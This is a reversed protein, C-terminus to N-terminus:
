RREGPPPVILVPRGSHEAVQHSVSGEFRERPGSLGRSGIVIVDADIEDAVDLIGEWTPAAVETRPEAEFGAARALEAGETARALGESANLDEFESGAMPSAMVAYSEAATLTPAIDLVVARRPGLLGATARFSGRSAESGDYCILIWRDNMRAEKSPYHM